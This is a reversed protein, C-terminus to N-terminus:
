LLAAILILVKHLTLNHIYFNFIDRLLVTLVFGAPILYFFWLTKSFMVCFVCKVKKRLDVITNNVPRKFTNMDYLFEDTNKRNNVVWKYLERYLQETKLFFGDLFWFCVIMLFLFLCIFFIATSNVQTDKAVFLIDKSLALVGGTIAMMWAKVQFSNGAMRKIVDQILDLEKHIVESSLKKSEETM